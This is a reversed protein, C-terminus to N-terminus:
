CLIAWLMVKRDELYFPCNGPLMDQLNVKSDNFASLLWQRGNVRHASQLCLLFLPYHLGNKFPAAMDGFGVVVHVVALAGLRAVISKVLPLEQELPPMQDAM